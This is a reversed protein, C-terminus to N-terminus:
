VQRTRHHSGRGRTQHFHVYEHAEANEKDSLYILHFISVRSPSYDCVSPADAIARHHRAPPAAACAGLSIGGEGRAMMQSAGSADSRSAEIASRSAEIACSYLLRQKEKNRWM